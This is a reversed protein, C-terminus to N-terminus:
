PMLALATVALVGVGLWGIFIPDYAPLKFMAPAELGCEFVSGSMALCLAPWFRAGDDVGADGPFQGAGDMGIM